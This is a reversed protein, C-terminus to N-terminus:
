HRAHAGTGSGVYAERVVPDAMIAPPSGDGIVRGENLVVLRRCNRMVEELNHEVLVVTVGAAHVAAIAEIQRGAETQNLGALPEDLLVIQPDVALARAVELRKMQGLPLSGALRSEVGGLGVRVLVDAARANEHRREVHLMARLPNATHRYGAALAVNDLVTMERFPRVIQHTLAFGRRVRASTPDNTVDSGGLFVKGRDPRLLGAVIRILTTKGAGNPGILGVFDGAEVSCSVGGVAQVGGFRIAVDDLQLVASM